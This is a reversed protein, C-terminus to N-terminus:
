FPHRFHVTDDLFLAESFGKDKPRFQHRLDECSVRLLQPPGGAIKPLPITNYVYLLLYLAGKGNM